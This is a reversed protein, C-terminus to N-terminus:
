ITRLRRIPCTAAGKWTQFEDWDKGNWMKLVYIMSVACGELSDPRRDAGNQRTQLSESQPYVVFDDVTRDRRAYLIEAPERELVPMEAGRCLRLAPETGYRAVSLGFLETISGVSRINKTENLYSPRSYRLVCFMMGGGFLVTDTKPDIECAALMRAAARDLPCSGHQTYFQRLLVVIGVPREPFHRRHRRGPERFRGSLAARRLFRFERRVSVRLFRAVM